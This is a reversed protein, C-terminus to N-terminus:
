KKDSKQLNEERSLVQANNFSNSGGKSRPYVHDIHAEFPSPTSGLTNRSAPILPKGSLDSTLIGGNRQRNADLIQTKQAPTFAKGAGVTQTDPLGSYPKSQPAVIPKSSTSTETAKGTLWAVGVAVAIQAAADITGANEQYFSSAKTAAEDYIKAAKAKSESWYKELLSEEAFVAKPTAFFVAFVTM